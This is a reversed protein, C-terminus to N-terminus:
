FHGDSVLHVCLGHRRDCFDIGIRLRRVVVGNGEQFGREGRDFSRTIIQAPNTPGFEICVKQWQEFGDLEATSIKHDYCRHIAQDLGFTGATYDVTLRAAWITDSQM